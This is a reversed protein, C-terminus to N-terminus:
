DNDAEPHSLFHKELKKLRQHMDELQQFRLANRRWSRSDEIIGGSSYVGGTDISRTVTAMGTFHSDDAIVLHDAIGVMGAITCRKGIVTSGAIGVCAAIATQEGIKVNHAIHVQNDIIVGDAIETNAIAGRDICTNAGIEVHNGIKVAGNQHIKVWGQKSPAFGFGDAGIVTGSHIVVHHGICIGYYIVVRPHLLAHEGISSNAGIVCGAGIVSHAGISVNEGIVVNAAISVQEGIIASAPVVASPHIGVVPKPAPDFWRSAQAYSVYPQSSILLAPASCEAAFQESVIVASAQTDRLAPRYKAQAMFTLHGSGADILPALGNIEIAGDGRYELGLAAALESVAISM